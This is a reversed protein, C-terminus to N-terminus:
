ALIKRVFFAEALRSPANCEIGRRRLLSWFAEKNFWQRKAQTPFVEPLSTQWAQQSTCSGSNTLGDWM